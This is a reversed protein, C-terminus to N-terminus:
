IKAREKALKKARDIALHLEWLSDEFELVSMGLEAAKAVMLEAKKDVSEDFRDSCTEFGSNKILTDFDSM